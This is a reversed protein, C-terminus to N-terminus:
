ETAYIGGDISAAELAGNFTAAGTNDILVVRDADLPNTISAGAKYISIAEGDSTAGLLRTNLATIKGTNQLYIKPTDGIIIQADVELGLGFKSVDGAALTVIPTDANNEIIIDVNDSTNNTQLVATLSPAQPAPVRAVLQSVTTSYNKQDTDRWVALLDTDQLAM